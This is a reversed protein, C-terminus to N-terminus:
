QGGIKKLGLRADEERLANELLEEISKEKLNEM